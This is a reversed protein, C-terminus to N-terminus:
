WNLETVILGYFLFWIAPSPYIIYYLPRMILKPSLFKHWFFNCFHTLHLPEHWCRGAGARRYRVLGGWGVVGFHEVWERCQLLMVGLENLKQRYESRCHSKENAETGKYTWCVVTQQLTWAFLQILSVYGLNLASVGCELSALISVSPQLYAYLLLDLEWGYELMSANSLTWVRPFLWPYSQCEYLYLDAALIILHLSWIRALDSPHLSYGVIANIHKGDWASSFKCPEDLDLWLCWGERRPKKGVHWKKLGRLMKKRAQMITFATQYRCFPPEIYEGLM